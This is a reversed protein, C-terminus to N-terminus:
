IEKGNYVGLIVCFEKHVTGISGYSYWLVTRKVLHLISEVVYTLIRKYQTRAMNRNCSRNRCPIMFGSVPKLQKKCSTNKQHWSCGCAEWSIFPPCKVIFRGSKMLEALKRSIFLRKSTKNRPKNEKSSKVACCFILQYFTM